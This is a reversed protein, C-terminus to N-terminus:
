EVAAVSKKAKRHYKNEGEKKRQVENLIDRLLNHDLPKSPDKM